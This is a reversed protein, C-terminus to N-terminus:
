GFRKRMLSTVKELAREEIQRVRERTITPRFTQAIAELTMPESDDYLGFRRLLITSERETLVGLAKEMLFEWVEKHEITEDPRHQRDDIQTKQLEGLPRAAVILARTVEESAEIKASLARLGEYEGIRQILRLASRQGDPIRMPTKEHNNSGRGSFTQIARFAYTSLQTGRALDFREIAYLIGLISEQRVDPIKMREDVNGKAGWLLNQNEHFFEDRLRLYGDRFKVMQELTDAMEQNQTGFFKQLRKLRTDQKKDGVKATSTSQLQCLENWRSEVENSVKLALEPLMPFQGLVVAIAKSLAPTQQTRLNTLNVELAPAWAKLNALTEEQNKTSTMESTAGTSFVVRKIRETEVAKLLTSMRKEQVGPVLSLAQWFKSRMDRMEQWRADLPAGTRLGTRLESLSGQEQNGGVDQPSSNCVHSSISSYM